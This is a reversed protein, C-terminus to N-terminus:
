ISLPKRVIEDKPPVYEPLNALEAEASAIDKCATAIREDRLSERKHVEAIEKFKGRVQEGQGDFLFWNEYHCAPSKHVRFIADIEHDYWKAKM